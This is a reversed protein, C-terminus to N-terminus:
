KLATGATLTWTTGIASTPKQLIVRTGNNAGSLGTSLADDTGSVIRVTGDLGGIVRWMHNLSDMACPWQDVRNTTGNIELCKGSQVNILEGLGPWGPHAKFTWLQHAAVKSPDAADPTKTWTDVSAGDATNAGNVELLYKGTKSTSSIQWTTGSPALSATGGAFDISFYGSTVTQTQQALAVGPATWSSGGGGSSGSGSSDTGGGGGGYYGGGGGGGGPSADLVNTVSGGLRNLKPNASSGGLGPTSGNGNDGRSVGGAGGPATPTSTRAWAAGGGGAAVAIVSGDLEVVTAGGGAAGSLHGPSGGGSGGQYGNLSWGGNSQRSIGNPTEGTGAVAATIVQGPSVPVDLTLEQGHGGPVTINHANATYNWNGGDAGRILIHAISM